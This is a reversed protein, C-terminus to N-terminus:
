APRSALDWETLEPPEQRLAQAPVPPQPQLGQSGVQTASRRPTRHFSPPYCVVARAAPQSVPGAREEVAQESLRPYIDETRGQRPLQLEAGRRGAALPSASRTAWRARSPWAELHGVHLVSSKVYRPAEGSQRLFERSPPSLASARVEALSAPWGDQPGSSQPPSCAHPGFSIRWLRRDVRPLDCAPGLLIPQALRSSRRTAWNLCRRLRSM